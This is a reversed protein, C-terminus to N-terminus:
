EGMKLVIWVILGILMLCPTVIVLIDMDVWLGPMPAKSSQNLYGLFGMSGLIVERFSVPM